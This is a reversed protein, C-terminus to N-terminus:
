QQTHAACLLMKLPNRFYFRHGNTKCHSAIFNKKNEVKKNMHFFFCYFALSPSFSLRRDLSACLFHVSSLCAIMYICYLLACLCIWLHVSLQSFNFAISWNSLNHTHPLDFANHRSPMKLLLTSRLSIFLSSLPWDGNLLSCFGMDLLNVNEFGFSVNKEEFYELREHREHIKRYKHEIGQLIYQTHHQQHCDTDGDYIRESEKKNSIFEGQGRLNYRRVHLGNSQWSKYAVVYTRVSSKIETDHTRFDWLLILLITYTNIIFVIGSGLIRRDLTSLVCEFMVCYVYSSRTGAHKWEFTLILITYLFIHTHVTCPIDADSQHDM